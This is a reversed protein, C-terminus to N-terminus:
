LNLDACVRLVHSSAKVNYYTANVLGTESIVITSRIVGKHLKGFTKKEGWAGWDTMVKKEPDSLLPFNLEKKTKFKELKETNDPSIGLVQYNAENLVALNDRFDCAETTCGPTNAAPYFYVIVKQGLYDSLSVLNQKSDQLTFNPAKEGVMLQKLVNRGEFSYIPLYICLFHFFLDVLM